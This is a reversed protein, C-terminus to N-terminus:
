CPETQTDNISPGTCCSDASTHWPTRYCCVPSVTSPRARAPSVTREALAHILVDYYYLLRSTPNDLSDGFQRNPDNYILSVPVERIRLGLKAAQVWLQLPMGYGPVTIRLRALADVRYAKFGCFADTIGLQLTENLLDTITQNIARRDPPASSQPYSRQMYRSGSIIDAVDREAAAVFLPIQSPEHQEDCDMTILWDYGRCIAYRFADTLSQGYGLNHGHRIVRIGEEGALRVPTQDTSGDDIVLVDSAYERVRSLVSQVTPAENFVPIAVLVRM